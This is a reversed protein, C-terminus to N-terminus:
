GRVVMNFTYGTRDFGQRDYFAHAATRQFNSTLRISDCDEAVAHQRAFMILEKGHGLGRAASDVVLDDVYLSRGFALDNVPRCGILGVFEGDTELAFLRYGGGSAARVRLLFEDKSIHNRLQRIVPWAKVLSVADNCEAITM